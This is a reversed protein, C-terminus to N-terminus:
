AEVLVLLAADSLAPWRYAWLGRAQELARTTSTGARALQLTRIFRVLDAVPKDALVPDPRRGLRAHRANQYRRRKEDQCAVSCTGPKKGRRRLRQAPIPKRCIACNM